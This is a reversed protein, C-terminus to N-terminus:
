ARGPVKLVVSGDVDRGEAVAIEDLGRARAEEFAWARAADTDSLTRAGIMEAVPQGAERWRHDLIARVGGGPAESCRLIIRSQDM